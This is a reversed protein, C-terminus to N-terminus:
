SDPESDSKVPPPEPATVPEPKNQPESIKLIGLSNWVKLLGQSLESEPVVASPRPSAENPIQVHLGDSLSTELPGHPGVCVVEVVAEAPKKKAM